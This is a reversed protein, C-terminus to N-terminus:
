DNWKNNTGHNKGPNGWDKRAFQHEDITDDSAKIAEAEIPHVTCYLGSTLVTWTRPFDQYGPYELNIDDSLRYGLEFPTSPLLFPIPVANDIIGDGDDDVGADGWEGDPGKAWHNHIYRNWSWGFRFTDYNNKGGCKSWLYVDANEIQEIHKLEHEIVSMFSDIGSFYEGIGYAIVEKTFKRGFLVLHKDPETEYHWDTMGPAKAIFDM